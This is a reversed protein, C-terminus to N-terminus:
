ENEISNKRHLEKLVTNKQLLPHIILFILGIFTIAYAAWVFAGHGNMQMFEAFSEFQFKM